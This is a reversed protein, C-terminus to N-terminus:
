LGELIWDIAVQHVQQRWSAKSYTHNAGELRVVKAKMRALWDAMPKTELVSTEFEQATLDASSLILLVRGEYAQLARTVRDSLRESTADEPTGGLKRKVLRALTGALDSLARGLPLKGSLLRRWLDASVLRERYYHRVLAQDVTDRDRVWPNVLLLGAVRPNQAAYFCSASAGDCLGWLLTEEVEPVCATLAECAAALDESVQEFSRFAGDSDGMGRYDFRLVPIGRAALDRALLVSQRHSGVRYQPAGPVLVLGRRRAHAPRHLIGILTEGACPFTVAEERGTM